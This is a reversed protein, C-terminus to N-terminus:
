WRNVRAKIDDRLRDCLPAGLISSLAELRAEAYRMASAADTVDDSAMTEATLAAALADFRAEGAARVTDDSASRLADDGLMRALQALVEPRM